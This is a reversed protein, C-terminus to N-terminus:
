EKLRKIFVRMERNYQETSHNSTSLIAKSEFTLMPNTLLEKNIEILKENAAVIKKMVEVANQVDQKM